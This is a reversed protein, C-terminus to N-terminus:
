GSRPFLSVDPLVPQCQDGEGRYRLTAQVLGRRTPRVHDISPRGASTYFERVLDHVFSLDLSVAVFPAFAQEKLGMM